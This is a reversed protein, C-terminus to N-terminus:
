GAHVAVQNPADIPLSQKSPGLGLLEAFPQLCNDWQHHDLVFTRGSSGLRCREERNQFLCSIGNVWEEVTEAQCVHQGAVVDLGELAARSAIVAKGAALAELVKNQIGRAIRLPVVVVSANQLYPRVDPVEGVLEVGPHRALRRVRWVPERGVILFLAESFRSRVQPWVERCFWTLGDINARYDLAGVFVCTWSRIEGSERCSAEANATGPKFHEADVGNPIARISGRPSIGNLLRAEPGSVVTTAHSRAILSKELQRVRHGELRYLWRLPGASHDAYDFWKQSDVDVLDVVCTALRRDIQDLYQGMSSCYALIADYSTESTWQELVRIM